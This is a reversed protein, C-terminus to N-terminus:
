SGFRNKFVFDLYNISQLELESFMYKLITKQQALNKKSTQLLQYFGIISYCSLEDSKKKIDFINKSVMMVDNILSWSYCHASDKPRWITESASRLIQISFLLWILQGILHTSHLYQILQNLHMFNPWCFCTTEGM